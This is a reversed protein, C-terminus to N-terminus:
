GGSRAALWAGFAQLDDLVEARERLFPYRVVAEGGVVLAVSAPLLAILGRLERETEPGAVNVVSLAVARAESRRVADLIEDAPLNPGLYLARWGSAAALLAGLLAGFEHLEGAPTTVVLTPAGPRPAYTALLGGVLSRMLTSATHEHAVKLSGNEWRTGVERLLPGLVEGVLQAPPLALSARALLQQATVVDFRVVAALFQERLGQSALAAPPPAAAGDHRALIGRLEEEPLHALRGIAHGRDLLQKIVRLRDIDADSYLRGGADSRAPVLTKYRREWMRLTDPNIGTARAVAGIRYRPEQSSENVNTLHRGRAPRQTGEVKGSPPV